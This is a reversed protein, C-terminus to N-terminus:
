ASSNDEPGAMLVHMGIHHRSQAGQADGTEAWPRTHQKSERTQLITKPGWPARDFFIPSPPEMGPIDSSGLATATALEHVSTARCM